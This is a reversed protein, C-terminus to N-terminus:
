SLRLRKRRCYTFADLEAELDM